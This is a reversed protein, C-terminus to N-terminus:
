QKEELLSLIWDLWVGAYGRTTMEKKIKESISHKICKEHEVLLWTLLKRFDDSQHFQKLGEEVLRMREDSKMRKGEFM